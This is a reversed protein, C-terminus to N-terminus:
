SIRELLTSEARCAATLGAISISENPAHIQSAGDGVGTVITGLAPNRARLEALLPLSAGEGVLAPPRGWAEGMAAVAEQVLPEKADIAYPEVLSSIQVELSAGWPCHRELHEQLLEAARAARVGPPIRLSVLAQASAALEHAFGSIPQSDIALVAIAARNWLRDALSDGAAVRVGPLVGTEAAWASADIPRTPGRYQGLGDVAVSGGDDVLTSLLRALSSLADPVAGGAHGSHVPAALTSVRVVCDVLGRMSLHLVPTEPTWNIGDAVIAHDFSGLELRDLLAPLSPSNIEEEGELVVTVDPGGGPPLSRLAAAHIAIGGKDDAVGRGYIRGGREIPEFPDSSWADRSGPPQVDYHAYLLVKPGSGGGRRAIVAPGQGGYDLLEAFAGAASFIEASAEAARRLSARDGQEGGVSPIRVLRTLDAIAARSIESDLPM